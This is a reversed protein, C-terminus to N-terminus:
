RTLAYISGTLEGARKHAAFARVTVTRKGTYDRAGDVVFGVPARETTALARITTGKPARLTVRAKQGHELTVEKYVLRADLPMRDGRHIGTGPITLPATGAIFEQPSVTPADAAGAVGALGTGALAAFAATTAILKHM